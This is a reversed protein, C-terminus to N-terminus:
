AGQYTQERLVITPALAIVVLMCGIIPIFPAPTWGTVDWLIGSIIPVVVACSYSITFMGASVRHVSEPPSILPPLALVLGLVAAGVCGWVAAGVVVWVGGLGVI